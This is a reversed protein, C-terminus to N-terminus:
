AEISLYVCNVGIDDPKLLHELVLGMACNGRNGIAVVLLNM